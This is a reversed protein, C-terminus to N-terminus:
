GRGTPPAALTPCAQAFAARAADATTGATICVRRLHTRSLAAPVHVAVQLNRSRGRRLERLRRVVPVTRLHVRSTRQHTRAPLVYVTTILNWLSSITRNRPGRRANHLRVTYRVTSGPIVTRPGYVSVRLGPRHAPPTPKLTRIETIAGARNRECRWSAPLSISKTHHGDSLTLSTMVNFPRTTLSDSAPLEQCAQPLVIPVRSVSFRLRAHGHHDHDLTLTAPPAGRATGLQTGGGALEKGHALTLHITTAAQSSRAAATKGRKGTPALLGRSSFTASRVKFGRPAGAVAALQVAGDPGPNATGTPASCSGYAAVDRHEPASVVPNGTCTTFDWGYADGAQGISYLAQVGLNCNGFSWATAPDGTYNCTDSVPGWIQTALAQGNAGNSTPPSTYDCRIYHFFWHWWCPTGAGGTAGSDWNGAPPAQLTTFSGNTQTVPGWASFFCDTNGPVEKEGQCGSIVYRDYLTPLLTKYAWLSLGEEMSSKLGTGDLKNWPGGPATLQTILQMEGWNQRVEASQTELAKDAQGVATAFKSQLDAYTGFFKPAQLAPTASSILGVAYSAAALVVGAVPNIVGVFAGAIGIGASGAAWPSISVPTAAAGNLPQLESGIAPLAADNSLFADERIKDLQGFYSLVQRAGYIEKLAENVVATWDAATFGTSGAPPTCASYTPPNASTQGSCGTFVLLGNRLNALQGDTPPVSGTWVDRVTTNPAILNNAPSAALSNLKGWAAAQGGTFQPYSSTDQPLWSTWGSRGQLSACGPVPSAAGTCYFWTRIGFPGRAIVADPYGPGAVPGVQITSYYSATNEWTQALNLPVDAPLQNWAWGGSGNPKLEWAQLQGDVVALVDTRGDGNIDGTRISSWEGAPPSANPLDKLASLVPLSTDWSNAGQTWAYVHLGDGLRGLLYGNPDGPGRLNSAMRLTEYWSPSAGFCSFSEAVCFPSDNDGLPSCGAGTAPCHTTPALTSNQWYGTCGQLSCSDFDFHQVAVGDATRYVNSQALGAGQGNPWPWLGVQNGLYYSPDSSNPAVTTDGTSAWGGSLQHVFYSGQYVLIAPIQRGGFNRSPTPGIVHMSLYTSPPMGSGAPSGVPEEYWTGGSISKTGAPPVYDYTHVGDPFEAVISETGNGLVDATQITSYVM